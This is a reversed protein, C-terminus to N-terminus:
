GAAGVHSVPFPRYLKNNFLTDSAFLKYEEAVEVLWDVLIARMSHNIDPQKKMYGPKPRSKLEAQKLYQYIESAYETVLFIDNGGDIDHIEPTTEKTCEFDEDDSSDIIM